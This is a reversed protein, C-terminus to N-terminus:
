KKNSELLKQTLIKDINDIDIHSIEILNIKKNKCYERLRSDRDQQEAFEEETHWVAVREYHQRGHFEIFTNHDPLYFDIKFLNRGFLVQNPVVRYQQM